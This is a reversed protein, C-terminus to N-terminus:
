LEIVKFGTMDSINDHTVMIITKDLKQLFRVVKQKLEQDLSSITEDLLLIEKDMLITMVFALRQREGGSLMSFEKELIDKSLDFEELLEVFKKLDFKIHLNRKYSFIEDLIESIKQNKFYLMQPIYGCKTRIYNINKENLLKGDVFIEGSKIKQFGMIIKLLTSKGRGSPSSIIIKEGTEVKLNFNDLLIREGFELVINKLEIM